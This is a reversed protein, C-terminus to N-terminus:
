ARGYSWQFTVGYTRQPAYFTTVGFDNELRQTAYVENGVNRAWLSVRTGSRSHLASVRVSQVRYAAENVTNAPNYFYGSNYYTDGGIEIDLHRFPILYSLGIALTRKPTRVTDNGSFDIDRQVLGTNQNFGSGMFEIYRGDMLNGAATLVLRPSLAWILEIDAGKITYRSANELSVLSGGLVSSFQIQGDYVENRFLSLNFRVSRGALDSKLGIEYSKVTEPDVQQPPTSVNIGNFNGAKFGQAYSAFLMVDHAPNIAITAKPSVDSYAQSRKAYNGTLPPFLPAPPTEASGPLGALSFESGADGISRRESSYRLGLTFSLSPKPYWTTQGFVAYASTKVSGHVTIVATADATPGPLSSLANGLGLATPVPYGLLFSQVPIKVVANEIGKHSDEFYAGVIWQWRDSGADNSLVQLEQTFARAFQPLALFDAAARETSDYDYQARNLMDQWGSISKIGFSNTQLWATVAYVDLDFDIGVDPNAGTTFPKDNVQLGAAQSLMSARTLTGALSGASQHALTYYSSRLELLKSPRWQLDLKGGADEYDLYKVGDDVLRKWYSERTNFLGALGVSLSDTMPAAIHAKTFFRDFNGIDMSVDAEFKDGPKSTTINIAGGVANRGYLIGQPGKLIEVQEVSGLAQAQHSTYPVYLGDIYTAISSDVTAQFADSGVGRLFIVSYGAMEAYQLGPTLLQLDKQDVVGKADLVESSFASVTLAVSQLSEERKQATVIIEDISRPPDARDTLPGFEDAPPIPDLEIVTMNGAAQDVPSPATDASSEWPLADFWFAPPIESSADDPDSRDGCWGSGSGALWLIAGAIYRRALQGM